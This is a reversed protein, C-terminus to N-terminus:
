LFICKQHNKQHLTYLTLHLPSSVRRVMASCLVAVPAFPFLRSCQWVVPLVCCTASIYRGRILVSQCPFVPSVALWRRACSQHRSRRHLAYPTSHLIYPTSHLTYLRPYEAFWRRSCSQWRSHSSYGFLMRRVGWSAPRMPSGTPLPCLLCMSIQMNCLRSVFPLLNFAPNHGAKKLNVCRAGSKRVFTATSNPTSRVNAQAHILRRMLKQRRSNRKGVSSGCLANSQTMCSLKLRRALKQGATRSRSRQARPQIRRGTAHTGFLM